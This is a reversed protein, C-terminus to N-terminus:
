PALGAVWATGNWYFRYIANVFIADGGAWPTTPSAVYGLPTLKAANPADQATITAEFFPDDDKANTKDPGGGWLSPPYSEDYYGTPVSM